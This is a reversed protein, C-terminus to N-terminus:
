AQAQLGAVRGDQAAAGLRDVGVLRDGAADLLAQGLGAQRGGGHLHHFGGVAVRDARQDAHGFVDVHDDRAAAVDIYVHCIGDLHKIVPVKAERSIREILGKGGRPVIVDVYEPMSILSGVAARDTTEVVPVAAALLGAEALVQQMCRAVARNSHIAESGGRLITANGSKLGLSDAGRTV